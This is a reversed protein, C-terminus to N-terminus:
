KSVNRLIVKGAREKNKWTSDLGKGSNQFKKKEKFM